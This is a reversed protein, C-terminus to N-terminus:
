FNASVGGSVNVYFVNVTKLYCVCPKPFPLDVFSCNAKCCWLPASHTHTLTSSTVWRQWTKCVSKNMQRARKGGQSPQQFQVCGRVKSGGRRHVNATQLRSVAASLRALGSLAAPFQRRRALTLLLWARGAWTLYAAATGMDTQIWTVQNNYNVHLTGASLFRLVSETLKGLTSVSM